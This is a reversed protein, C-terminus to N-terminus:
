LLKLKRILKSKYSFFNEVSPLIDSLPAYHLKCQLLFSKLPKLHYKNESYTEIKNDDVNILINEWRLLSEHSSFRVSIFNYLADYNDRPALLRKVIYDSLQTTKRYLFEQHFITDLYAPHYISCLGCGLLQMEIATLCFTETRGSPNPVGVKCKGLVDYKENGLVGLFHVNPLINKNDDILESMFSNEYTAEAIGYAGMEISKDYLQGSGIVYLQADPVRKIIDGWAKALLDFGKGPVIAGMYVVNHNDSADIKVTYWEKSQIPFINYVYTSKRMILNDYSLELFERGCFIVRKVHDDKNIRSMRDEPIDNHAWLVLKLGKKDIDSVIDYQGQNIIFIDYDNKKCYNCADNIDRVYYSKVSSPMVTRSLLIVKLETNRRALLQSVLLFEYESGCMGPNGNLFSSYDLDELGPKDFYFAVSIM